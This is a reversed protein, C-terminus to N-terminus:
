FSLNRILICIVTFFFIKLVYWLLNKSIEKAEIDSVIAAISIISANPYMRGLSVIPNLVLSESANLIIERSLRYGQL